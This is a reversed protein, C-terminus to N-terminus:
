EHRDGLRANRAVDDECAAPQVSFSETRGQERREGNSRLLLLLSYAGRENAGTELPKARLPDM